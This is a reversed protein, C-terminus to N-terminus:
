SAIFRRLYYDEDDRNQCHYTERIMQRLTEGNPGSKEEAAALDVGALDEDGLGGKPMPNVTWIEDISVVQGNSLKLNTLKELLKTAGAGYAVALNLQPDIVVDLVPAKNFFTIDCPQGIMSLTILQYGLFAERSGFLDQIKKMTENQDM